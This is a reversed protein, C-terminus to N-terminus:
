RAINQYVCVRIPAIYCCFHLNRSYRRHQLYQRRSLLSRTDDDTNHNVNVRRCYQFLNKHM